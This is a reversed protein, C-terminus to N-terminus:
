LLLRQATLFSASFPPAPGARPEGHAAPSPVPARDAAVADFAPAWTRGAPTALDPAGRPAALDTGCFTAPGSLAPGSGAAPDGDHGACMAGGATEAGSMQHPPVLGCPAVLAALYLALSLQAFIRTM